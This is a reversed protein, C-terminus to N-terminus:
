SDWCFFGCGTSKIMGLSKRKSCTFFSRGHNPGPMSVFKRTSRCGCKCLPPTRKCSSSPTITGNPTTLNGVHSEQKIVPTSICKPLNINKISNHQIEKKLVTKRLNYSKKFREPTDQMSNSDKSTISRNRQETTSINLTKFPQRSPKQVTKLKRESKSSTSIVPTVSTKTNQKLQKTIKLIAGDQVMRWALFATNRADCLGSHERGEFPLGLESLAGRLGQPRRKYFEKYTARIDIWQSLIDPKHLHKRVCENHLCVSLDWDSWTVFTCINQKDNVTRSEHFILKRKESIQKIWRSFILLCTGLPVGADVDDQKIGTLNTCFESLVPNESPMVYQQFEEEIMGTSLNILVAPFEIIEPQNGLKDKWCTSEFDIVILYQFSQNASGKLMSSTNIHVVEIHNLE